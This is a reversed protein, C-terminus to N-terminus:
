ITTFQPGCFRKKMKPIESKLWEKYSTFHGGYTGFTASSTYGESQAIGDRSTSQSAYGARYASGASNLLETVAKKAIAERVIARENFLDRLGATLRYHWFGPISNFNMLYSMVFVGNYFSWTVQSATSPVLEVIGTLEDWVYWERPVTATQNTNFWGTLSELNIINPYPLKLSMWKNFTTPRYYTSPIGKQDAFNTPSAETDVTEPEIFTIIKEQVWNAALRVQKIIDRDSLRSNDIILVETQSTTPLKLPDVQVIVYDQQQKDLLLLQQPALGNIPVPNGGNWALTSPNGATFTLPFAGKYHDLPVEIVEVGTVLQPQQKPLLIEYNMFTVGTAWTGKIEAVPVISVAFLPSQVVNQNQDTVQIVYDGQKARYINNSDFVDKNLDFTVQYQTASTVAIQKTSVAGYGDTRCLAVSLTTGTTPNSVLITATIVSLEPHYRSYEAKDTFVNTIQLITV